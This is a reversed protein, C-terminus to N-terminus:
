PGGLYVPYAADELEQAEATFDPLVPPRFIERPLRYVALAIILVLGTKLAVLSYYGSRRGLRIRRRRVGPLGQRAFGTALSPRRRGQRRRKFGPHRMCLSWGLFAGGM